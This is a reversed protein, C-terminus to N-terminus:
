HHLRLLSRLRSALMGWIYCQLHIILGPDQLLPNLDRGNVPFFPLTRLFPNSTVIIFLLFGVTIMGMVALVRAVSEQPMGRSFSAVAVTWAAQILVWLLLSGEHAGWVATLRYYWPLQTNSNNAVYQLTFDNVYFAWELIVFSLLLMIFMGWSLPRATNMLLTNNKSAGILPLISLLVSLSLSLILAFHGIEAIM